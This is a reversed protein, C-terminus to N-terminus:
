ATPQPVSKWDKNQVPKLVKHKDKLHSLVGTSNFIRGRKGSGLSSCQLCYYQLAPMSFVAPTCAIDLYRFLDAPATPKIIQHASKVHETVNTFTNFDDLYNPCHNCAWSLTTDPPETSKVQQAEASSLKQWSPTSHSSVAFHSVAARWPFADLCPKNGPGTRPSCALCLFRLDLKDMEACTAHRADLGALAVLSAAAASGTTSFSLITKVSTIRESRGLFYVYPNERCRHAAAADWGILCPQRLGYNTGHGGCPLQGCHFVATALNLSQTNPTATSSAPKDSIGVPSSHSELAPPVLQALEAKRTATWSVIFGPLADKADNFHASQIDVDDTANVVAGFAPLQLVEFLGPLYRWQAPVLTKKYDKYIDQVLRKRATIRAEHERDVRRAKEAQVFPELTPYIKKWIRDTLPAVQRVASHHDICQVDSELYGLNVFRNKIADYRREVKGREDLQRRNASDRSWNRCIAAHNVIAEVLTIREETFDELKKRAGIVRMNVDREHAGLLDAMEEIDARWYFKSNSAHGHAFGGINTYPILRLITDELHPFRKNFSSTVVLNAKLCSTCARRRLGFDIRQVNKAGCSQCRAEAYLLHAWRQESLDDPCDPGDENERSRKWVGNAAKSLLHERFTHNTRALLILEKPGLRGFIELLVDLPITTLYCTKSSAVVPKRKKPTTLKARKTPRKGYESTDSEADSEEESEFAEDESEPKRKGGTNLTSKRGYQNKPAVPDTVEPTPAQPALRGSARRPGNIVKPTM